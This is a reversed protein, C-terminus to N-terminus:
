IRKMDLLLLYDSIEEKSHNRAALEHEIGADNLLFQLMMHKSTTGALFHKNTAEYAIGCYVGENNLHFNYFISSIGLNYYSFEFSISAALINNNFDFSFNYKISIHESAEIKFNNMTMLFDTRFRNIDKFAKEYLETLGGVPTIDTQINSEIIEKDLNFPNKKSSLIEIHPSVTTEISYGNIMDRYAFLTTTQPVIYSGKFHSFCAVDPDLVNEFELHKNKLILKYIYENIDHIDWRPNFKEEFIASM